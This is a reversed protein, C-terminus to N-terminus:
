STSLPNLIFLNKFGMENLLAVPKKFYHGTAEMGILIEEVPQQKSIEAITNHLFRIGEQSNHFEFSPEILSGFYNAILAKHHSKGIEIPVIMVNELNKSQLQSLLINGKNGRIHQISNVSKLM